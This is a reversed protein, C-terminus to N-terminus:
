QDWAMQIRTITSRTILTVLTL